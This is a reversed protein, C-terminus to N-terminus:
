RIMQKLYEIFKKEERIIKKEKKKRKYKLFRSLLSTNIGFGGACFNIGLKKLLKDYRGGSAIKGPIGKSYFSFVTGSHYSMYTFDSLDLFIEGGNLIKKLTKLLELLKLIKDRAPTQLLPSFKKEVEESNGFADCLRLVNKSTHPNVKWAKMLEEAESISKRQLFEKLEEMAFVSLNSEKLIEELILSNGISLVIEEVGANRLAHFCLVIPELEVEFANSSYIETGTQYFEMESSDSQRLVHGSYYFRLPLDEEKFRDRLIRVVQPTFDSRFVLFEGTRPDVFRYLYKFESAEIASSYDSFKEFLPPIVEEYGWKLFTKILSGEIRRLVDAKDAIIDVM